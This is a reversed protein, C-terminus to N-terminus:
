NWSQAQVRSCHCSCYQYSSKIQFKIVMYYSYRNQFLQWVFKLKIVYMINLHPEYKVHCMECINCFNCNKYTRKQWFVVVMSQNKIGFQTFSCLKVLIWWLSVSFHAGLSSFHKGSFTHQAPLVAGMGYKEEYSEWTALRM